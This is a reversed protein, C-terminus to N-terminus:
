HAGADAPARQALNSPKAIWVLATLAIFLMGSLWFLDVTSLMRAQQDIMRDMLGLAQDPSLGHAHMAALARTADPNYATVHEVLHARHVAARDNWLTVSVSAGFAGATFRAFNSLGTAAPIREPPLGALLLATLPLFFSVTAAGQIVTPLVISWFDTQLNFRARMFMVLAFVLFAASAIKRADLRALNRGLIPAILLSLIGIPAVTLGSLFATYGMITQLWLPIIVTIGFFVAYGVAIALTGSTFNRGKFLSLDVIPHENDVLEWVLFLTFGVAAVCALTVIQGSNFWDLENGKDLMIQLAAVWTILLGLGVYDVPVKRKASDRTRYLQWTVAAALLGVPVNIYFIWPWTANDSIWGGLLPGSIPALLATMSWIALALGAKERPFTSLLMAQSLPVMPGAVAGQLVRFVILTELNPALGCLWSATSFLLVSTVFLRVQGFRVVLWGTLPVAIATSVAFSTIVWTGQSPSVGLDGAITPISVNAITTDLVTMFVALSLVFAGVAREMGELPPPSAAAPAASV